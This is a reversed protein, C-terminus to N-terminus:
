VVQMSYHSKLLEAKSDSLLIDLDEALDAECERYSYKRLSAKREPSQIELDEPM